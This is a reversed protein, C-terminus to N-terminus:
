IRRCEISGWEADFEEQSLNPIEEAKDILMQHSQVSARCSNDVKEQYGAERSAAKAAAAKMAAYNHRFCEIKDPPFKGTAELKDIYVAALDYNSECEPSLAGSSSSSDSCASLLGCLILIIVLHKNM